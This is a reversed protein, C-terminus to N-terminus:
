RQKGYSRRGQWTGIRKTKQGLMLDWRGNLLDLWRYRNKKSRRLKKNRVQSARAGFPRLFRAGSPARSIWPMERPPSATTEEYMVKRREEGHRPQRRHGNGPTRPEQRAAGDCASREAIQGPNRSVGIGALANSSCGFPCRNRRCSDRRSTNQRPDRVRNFLWQWRSSGARMQSGSASTRILGYATAGDERLYARRAVSWQGECHNVFTRHQRVGRSQNAVGTSGVTSGTSKRANRRTSCVDRNRSTIPASSDGRPKQHPATKALARVPCGCILRSRARSYIIRWTARNPRIKKGYIADLIRTAGTAVGPEGSHRRNHRNIVRGTLSVAVSHIRRRTTRPIWHGRKRTTAPENTGRGSPTSSGLGKVNRRSQWRDIRKTIQGLM